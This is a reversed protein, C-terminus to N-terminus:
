YKDAAVIKKAKEECGGANGRPQIQEQTQEEEGVTGSLEKWDSQRLGFIWL